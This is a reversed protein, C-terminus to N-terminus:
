QNFSETLRNILSGWDFTYRSIESPNSIPYAPKILSVPPIRKERGLHLASKMDIKEVKTKKNM